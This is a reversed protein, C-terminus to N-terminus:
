EIVAYSINPEFDFGRIRLNPIGLTEAVAETEGGWDPNHLEDFAIVAGKPMRSIFTEIAIKTPSYIDFDLYLLSCVFHPNDKIFNPMTIAADGRVLIIKEKSTIFTNGNHVNAAKQLESFSDYTPEFIGSKNVGTEDLETYNPFGEFTDFGIIQRHYNTPEYIESLHMFTFLGNGRFVGGEVISGKVNKQMEFIKHLALFRSVTQRPTYVPFNEFKIRSSVSSEATFKSINSKGDTM